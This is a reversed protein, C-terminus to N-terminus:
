EYKGDEFNWEILTGGFSHDSVYESSVINQDKYKVIGKGSCVLLYKSSANIDVPKKINTFGNGRGRGNDYRTHGPQMAYEILKNDLNNAYGESMYKSEITKAIGIGMDYLVVSVSKNKSNLATYQWWRGKIDAHIDPYYAHHRINLYGEQLAAVLREPVKGIISRLHKIMGSMEGSSDNSTKFRNDIDKWLRDLKKVGGPKIADFYGTDVFLRKIERDEPFVIKISQHTLGDYLSDALLQCRTIKAFVVLAAAASISTCKSFDIVVEGPAYHFEDIEDLFEMTKVFHEDRYLCIEEPSIVHRAKGLAM